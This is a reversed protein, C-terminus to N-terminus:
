ARLCAILRVDDDISTNLSTGAAKLKIIVYNKLFIMLISLPLMYLEFNLVIIIFAQFRTLNLYLDGTM